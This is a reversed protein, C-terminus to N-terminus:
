DVIAGGLAAAIWTQALLRHRRWLLLVGAGTMVAIAGPSGADTAFRAVETMGPTMAEHIRLSTAKDWAVLWQNELIEGLLAGFAWIALALAILGRTLHLGLYSA